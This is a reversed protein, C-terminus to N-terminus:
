PLLVMRRHDRFSGAQLRYLYVGPRVPNGSADRRNWTVVQYGSEFAGNALTRVRRGQTDFVELRVPTSVPLDFRITTTENFPNPQNQYLAFRTPLAPAAPTLRTFGTGRSAGVSGTLILFADRLEGEALPPALFGLCLTDGAALAAVSGDAGRVSALVDGARTQRASVPATANVVPSEATTLLRGVSRLSHQGLFVLRVINGPVSDLAVTDLSRRPILHALTRWGAEQPVQVLLGTSDPNGVRNMGAAEIVLPAVVAAGQSEALSVTLVEGPAGVFPEAGGSTQSTVLEGAATVVRQPLQLTGLLVRSGTAVARVAPSHDVFTLAARDVSGPVGAQVLRLRYRGDQAALEGPLHYLDTALSGRTSGGLVSNAAGWGLGDGGQALMGEGCYGDDFVNLEVVQSAVGGGPDLARFVVYYTGVQPNQWRFRANAFTSGAPLLAAQYTVVEGDADTASVDMVFPVCAALWQDVLGVFQPAHDYTAQAVYLDYDGYALQDSVYALRVNDPAWRPNLFQSGRHYFRAETVNKTTDRTVLQTVAYQPTSCGVAQGNLALLLPARGQPLDFAETPGFQGGVYQANGGNVSVSYISDRNSFYIRRGDPSWRLPHLDNGIGVATLAHDNSGDANVLRIEWMGVAPDRHFYALAQGNPQFAPCTARGTQYTLRWTGGGGPVDALWIDTAQTPLVQQEFAVLDGRPSWDPAYQHTQAAAMPAVPSDDLKKRYIQSLSSFQPIIARFALEQGGPAWTPWDDAQGPTAVLRRPSPTDYPSRRLTLDLTYPLDAVAVGSGGAFAQLNGDNLTIVVLAANYLTGFSPLAVQVSGELSDVEVWQPGFARVAWEPHRWLLNRRKLDGQMVALTEWPAAYGVVSVMLRGGTAECGACAIVCPKRVMGDPTVRAVLDQSLNRLSPDARVVWYEAGFMHLTMPATAVVLDNAANVTYSSRMGALRLDHSLYGLTISTDPPIAYADDWTVGDKNQWAGLDEAPSFGFSPPYGFQGEAVTTDNVFNATRWNHLLLALRDAPDNSYTFYTLSGCETCEEDRLRLGLDDLSRGPGHLWRFLLDDTRGAFSKDTGQFHSALYAAFGQQDQYNGGDSILSRTYDVDYQVPEREVGGLAAAIQSHLEELPTMEPAGAANVTHQFEHVAMWNARGDPRTWGTGVTDWAASPVPGPISLSNRHHLTMSPDTLSDENAREFQSFSRGYNDRQPNDGGSPPYVPDYFPDAPNNTFSPVYLYVDLHKREEVLYDPQSVQLGVDHLPNYDYLSDRYTIPQGYIDFRRNVFDYTLAIDSANTFHLLNSRVECLARGFQDLATADTGFDLPHGYTNAYTDSWLLELDRRAFPSNRVAPVKYVHFAVSTVSTTSQSSDPVPAPVSIGVGGAHVVEQTLLLLLLAAVCASPIIRPVPKM